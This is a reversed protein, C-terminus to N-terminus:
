RSFFPSHGVLWLMLGLVSLVLLACGISVVSLFGRLSQGRSFSRALLVVAAIEFAVITVLGFVALGEALGGAVAGMGTAKNTAIGRFANLMAPVFFFLFPVWALGIGWLFRTRSNTEVEAHAM